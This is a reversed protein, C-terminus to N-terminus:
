VLVLQEGLNPGVDQSPGGEAFQWGSWLEIALTGWVRRHLSDIEAQGAFRRGIEPTARVLEDPATIPSQGAALRRVAALTLVVGARRASGHGVLVRRAAAIAAAARFDCLLRRWREDPV